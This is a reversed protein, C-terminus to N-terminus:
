NNVFFASFVRSGASTPSLNNIPLLGEHLSSIIALYTSRCGSVRLNCVRCLRGVRIRPPRSTPTMRVFQARGAPKKENCCIHPRQGIGAYNKTRFRLFLHVVATSCYTAECEAWSGKEWSLQDSSTEWTWCLRKIHLRSVGAIYEIIWVWTAFNQQTWDAM